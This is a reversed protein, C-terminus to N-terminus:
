WHWPGHPKLYHLTTRIVGGTLTGGNAILRIPTNSYYALPTTIGINSSDVAIGIQNGYRTSDDAVGVSFSSTGTIATLVRVNVCLVLSREPIQIKTDTFTGSVVVDESKHEVRLYEGTKKLLLGEPVWTSGDYVVYEDTAENWLRLRKFPPVFFWGGGDLSQAIQNAKGSWSDTPSSGVVWCQGVKPTEPPTNMGMDEVAAQILVDLINLTENHTVEKQSQSQMIYPLHLRETTHTM